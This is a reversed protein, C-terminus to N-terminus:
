LVGGPLLVDNVDIFRYVTACKYGEFFGEPKCLDEELERATMRMCVHFTPEKASMDKEWERREKASEFLKYFRAM